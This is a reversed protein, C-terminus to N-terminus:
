KENELESIRRKLEIMKLERGTMARTLEELTARDEEAAIIADELEDNKRSMEQSHLKLGERMMNLEFALDGIEDKSSVDIKYDLNGSGVIQAGWKLQRIPHSITRALYFASVVIIFAAALIAFLLQNRLQHATAFIEATDIKIVVGLRLSPLYKWVALVEEGRYDISVGSDSRGRVAEQIPLATSDGFRVIRSFAAEGDFRLPASFQVGGEIRSAVSMEGTEGLNTYDLILDYLEDTSIQLGVAGVAKEDEFVPAVVLAAPEGSVEYVEFDSISAELLTQSRTFVHALESDRYTGTKLNTGLDDDRMISFLVEGDTSILYMDTYNHLERLYSLFPSFEENLADYEPSDYGFEAVVVDYRVLADIISPDRLLSTAVQRTETLFAEIRDGRQNALASLYKVTEQKLVKQTSDNSLYVVVLLPILGIILFWMVLRTAIRPNWFSKSENM